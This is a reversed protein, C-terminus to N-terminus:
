IKTDRINSNDDIPLKTLSIINHLRLETIATTTTLYPNHLNQHTLTTTPRPIYTNLTPITWLTPHRAGAQKVDLSQCNWVDRCISMPSEEEKPTDEM